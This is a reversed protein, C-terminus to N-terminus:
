AFKITNENIMEIDEKIENFTNINDKFIDSVSGITSFPQEKLKELSIIGNVILYEKLQKIFQIQKSNLRNDNIYKSFIKNATERDLGVLNRVVQVVNSDGFTEVFDKNDGLEEFMIRELDQKETETLIQNHKIKYIVINDMNGELFKKVKKKYDEFNDRNVNKQEEDVIVTDEIDVTWIKRPPNEIFKILDRLEIRVNEIDFFTARDWYETKSTMQIFESKEKIQSITGLEKLEEILSVISSVQMNYYKKKIKRVQLSYILNDFRKASEDIDKVIFIPTLNEKIEAKDISSISNWNEQKKYKDIYKKKGRVIFSEENLENIADLFEQVLQKRYESYEEIGQYDLNQLEVILDLKANFIKETLGESSSAEIGKSNEEFFEFNSCCDFIYFEKKHIGEGFLNDCLRTGRGIMQWFKVKSKVPKFFVLNLIEPVDIGTDLMDVSISIQPLKKPDEFTEILSSAYNVQNDIVRAFLGKYHPYLSNFVKEIEEAHNHNKAFIITKGFSIEEKM